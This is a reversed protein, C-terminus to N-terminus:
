ALEQLLLPNKFFDSFRVFFGNIERSSSGTSFFFSWWKHHHSSRVKLRKGVRWHRQWKKHLISRRRRTKRKMIMNMARRFTLIITKTFLLFNRVINKKINKPHSRRKRERKEEGEETDDFKEIGFQSTWNATIPFHIFFVFFRFLFSIDDWCVVNM